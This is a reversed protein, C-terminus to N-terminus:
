DAGAARNPLPLLDAVTEEDGDELYGHQRMWADNYLTSLYRNGSDPLLTVIRPGDSGFAALEGRKALDAVLREVGWVAAGSSGGAFIAERRALRRAALFAQRDTVQYMADIQEFEPCGILEEDGLGELRYPGPRGHSGTHFHDSFISGEVDVAVVRVAPDQEKLFRGAGSVSGGTGIGAVLFDIRGEMQRWIEPGTTAHHAENNERNNHQDPFYWGPNEAALQKAKQNYSEPHEPPLEGDVLVLEAGLARLAALKEPSTQRRVVLVCRLGHLVAMMALGMGTNGSSSEVVTGGAALRGDALAREVMHRAVRDKMSGMPNLYELKAYVRCPESGHLCRRLRVLPTGGVADTLHDHVPPTVTKESM